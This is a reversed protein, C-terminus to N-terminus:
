DEGLLGLSNLLEDASELSVARHFVWETDSMAERYEGFRNVHGDEASVFVVTM